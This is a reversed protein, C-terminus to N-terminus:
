WEYNCSIRKWTKRASIREILTKPIGLEQALVKLSKGDAKRRVLARCIEHVKDHDITAVTFLRNDSAHDMNEQKTCWELNDLSNNSTDGDKHNVEVKSEPDTNELFAEAMLRHVRAKKRVGAAGELDVVWYGRENQSLKKLHNTNVNKVRGCTSVAIAQFPANLTQWIEGPLDTAETHGPFPVGLKKFRRQVTITSVGFQEAIAKVPTSPNAQIFEELTQM